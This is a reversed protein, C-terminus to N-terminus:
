LLLEAKQHKKLEREDQTTWPRRVIRKSAKAMVVLRGKARDHPESTTALRNKRTTKLDVVIPKEPTDTRFVECVKTYCLRMIGICPWLKRSADFAAYGREQANVAADLENADNGGPWRVGLTLWSPKEATLVSELERM